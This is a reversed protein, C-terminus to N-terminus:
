EQFKLPNYERVKFMEKPVRGLCLNSFQCMGFVDSCCNFNKGWKQTLYAQEIQTIKYDLWERFELMHENSFEILPSREFSVGNWETNVELKGTVKNKTKETPKKIFIGDVIGPMFDESLGLLKTMYSYFCLQPDLEFSTFFDDKKWLATVKHDVLCSRGDITGIKDVTGCLIIDYYPTSKWPYAFPLEICLQGNLRKPKIIDRGEGYRRTYAKCTEVMHDFTRFDGVPVDACKQLFWNMALQLSDSVTKGSEWHAIFKHIATGYDMKYQAYTSYLGDEHIHQIKRLCDSDKILSIDLMFIQKNTQLDKM